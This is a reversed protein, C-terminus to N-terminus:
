TRRDRPKGRVCRYLAAALTRSRLRHRGCSMGETYNAGDFEILEGGGRGPSYRGQDGTNFLVVRRMPAKMDHIFSRQGLFRVVHSGDPGREHVERLPDDPGVSDNRKGAASVARLLQPMLVGLADDALQRYQVRRLEAFTPEGPASRVDSMPLLKKARVCENRVYDDVAEVSDSLIPVRANVGWSQYADNFKAQHHRAAGLLRLQQERTLTAM